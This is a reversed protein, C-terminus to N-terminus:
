LPALANRLPGSPMSMFGTFPETLDLILFMACSASLAFIGLFVFATANFTSFLSFTAFLMVLWFVMIVLFPLPILKGSEVFLLLRTQAVDNSLQAARAQLARQLDNHPSLSQIALYVNEADQNVEFQGGVTDKKERWIRDVFPGIVTRIQSRIPRAEPGYQALLNDLLIIDVTMQKVQASQTDFSGKASAILLGLVLAAITATLGAGLRVLDGSEKSLHHEPLAKRLSFGAAIGGLTLAFILCSLAIPSM